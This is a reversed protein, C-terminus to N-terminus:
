KVMLTEMIDCLREASDPVSLKHLMRAMADYRSRDSLLSHIEDMLRQPTCESELVLVAGDKESLARANKEQHNDTVNPSPILICPTGSAAIENCSSAGARSIILDAAAMQVPRDYIYDTLVCNRKKALGLEEFRQRTNEYDRKGSAHVHLIVSNQSSYDRMMELVALNVHEAGLSGGFSLIFKKEASIGLKRRAEEKSLAGFGARLPNGVKVIKKKAKLMEGTKAFNIWIRDVRRQLRRIALGPLANSEHVATPIGM